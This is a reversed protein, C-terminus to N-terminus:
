SEPRKIESQEERPSGMRGQSRTKSSSAPQVAIGGFEGSGVDGPGVGYPFRGWRLGILDAIHMGASIQSAPCLQGGPHRHVGPVEGLGM